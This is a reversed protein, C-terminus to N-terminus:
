SPAGFAHVIESIRVAPADAGLELAV